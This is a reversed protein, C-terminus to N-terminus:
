YHWSKVDAGAPAHTVVHDAMMKIFDTPTWPLWGHGKEPRGYEFKAHAEPHSKLFDDMDYVALNLYFNDMDGVWIFIKDTLEPGIKAWNKDAYYRLDYGHDRM